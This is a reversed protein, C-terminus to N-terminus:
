LLHNAIFRGVEVDGDYERRMMRGEIRDTSSKEIELYYSKHTAYSFAEKMPRRVLADISFRVLKLSKIYPNEAQFLPKSTIVDFIEVAIRGYEVDGSQLKFFGLGWYQSKKYGSGYSLSIEGLSKPDPVDETKDFLKRAWDPHWFITAKWKGAFKSRDNRYINILLVFGGGIIAWIVSAVVNELIGRLTIWSEM